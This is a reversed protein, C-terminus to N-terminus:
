PHLQSKWLSNLEDLFSIQAPNIKHRAESIRFWRAQDIEPIKLKRGSNSPWEIQCTNSVLLSPNWDGKVAWAYVMKGSKQFVPTLPLFPGHPTHGTEESFERLAAHLPEEDSAFEGKPITWAGKDRHQWFPGGPHVLLVELEEDKPRFLLLGASKSKM